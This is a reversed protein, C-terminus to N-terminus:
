IMIHLSFAEELNVYILVQTIGQYALEESCYELEAKDSNADYDRREDDTDDRLIALQQDRKDLESQYKIPNALADALENLNNPVYDKVTIKLFLCPLHLPQGVENFLPLHRYGPCLGVVPLVRHGVLKGSEEYAAIRLVALDPLVVQRFVFADESYIPAIGNNPITKTRFKNRRWVTDCPLGYM